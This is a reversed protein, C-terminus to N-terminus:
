TPRDRKSALGPSALTRTPSVRPFTPPSTACIFADVQRPATRYPAIGRRSSEVHRPPDSGRRLSAPRDRRTPTTHRDRKSEVRRAICADSARQSSEARRHASGEEVRRPPPATKSAAIGRRCPPTPPPHSPLRDKVLSITKSAALPVTKSAALPVTKSAALPHWHVWREHPAALSHDVRRSTPTPVRSPPFFLAPPSPSPHPGPSPALSPLRFSSLPPPHPLHTLHPPSALHLSAPSTSPYAFALRPATPAPDPGKRRRM